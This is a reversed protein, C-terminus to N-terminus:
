ILKLTHQSRYADSHGKKTTGSGKATKFRALVEALRDLFKQEIDGAATNGPDVADEFDAEDVHEAKEELGSDQELTNPSKSTPQQDDENGFDPGRKM